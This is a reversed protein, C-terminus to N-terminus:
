KLLPQFSITGKQYLFGLILWVSFTISGFLAGLRILNIGKKSQEQKGTKYSVLKLIFGVTMLFFAIILLVSTIIILIGAITSILDLGFM